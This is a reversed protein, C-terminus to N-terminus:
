AEEAEDGDAIERLARMDDDSIPLVREFLVPCRKVLAILDLAAYALGASGPFKHKTTTLEAGRSLLLIEREIGVNKLAERLLVRIQKFQEQTLMEKCSFVILDGPAVRLKRLHYNLRSLPETSIRWSKIESLAQSYGAYWADCHDIM